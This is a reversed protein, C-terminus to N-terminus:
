FVFVAAGVATGIGASFLQSQLRKFQRGYETADLDDQGSSVEVGGGGSGSALMAAQGAVEGIQIWRLTLIHATLLMVGRDRKISWLSPPCDQVSEALVIEILQSPVPQLEPYRILFETVTVM